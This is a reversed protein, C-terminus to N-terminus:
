DLELGHPRPALFPVATIKPHHDDAKRSWAIPPTGCSAKCDIHFSHDALGFAIAFPLAATALAELIIITYRISQIGRIIPEMTHSETRTPHSVQREADHCRYVLFLYFLNVAGGIGCVWWKADVINLSFCDGHAVLLVFGVLQVTSFATVADAYLELQKTMDRGDDM